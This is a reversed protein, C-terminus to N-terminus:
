VTKFPLEYRMKHWFFKDDPCLIRKGEARSKWPEQELNKKMRYNWLLYIVRCNADGTANHEVEAQDSEFIRMQQEFYGPSLLIVIRRSKNMNTILDTAEDDGVSGDRGPCFIKYKRKSEEELKKLFVTKVWQRVQIDEIDFSIYVDHEKNTDTDVKYKDRPHIGFFRFVLVKTEYPCRKATIAVGIVVALLSGLGISLGIAIGEFTCLLLERTIDRIKKYKGDFNCEIGRDTAGPSVNIWEKMWTMNCDCQFPNGTVITKDFSMSQMEKPVFSLSNGSIDLYALNKMSTRADSSFYSLKNNSITLNVIKSTYNKRTFHQINNNDLHLHIRGFREEPLEEPLTTLGTGTCNVVMANIHPREQCVCGPPCKDTKNCVFESLEINHFFTKAPWIHPHVM